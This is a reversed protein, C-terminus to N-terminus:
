QIPVISSQCLRMRSQSSRHIASYLRVSFAVLHMADSLRIKSPQHTTPHHCSQRRSCDIAELVLGRWAFSSTKFFLSLHTCVSAYIETPLLHSLFEPFILSIFAIFFHPQQLLLPSTTLFLLVHHFGLFCKRKNM